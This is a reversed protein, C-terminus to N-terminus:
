SPATDKPTLMQGMVCGPPPCSMPSERLDRGAHCGMAQGSFSGGADVM